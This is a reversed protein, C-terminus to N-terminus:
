GGAGWAIEFRRRAARQRHHDVGRAQQDPPAQDLVQHLESVARLQDHQGRGAREVHLRCVEAPSRDQNLPGPDVGATV